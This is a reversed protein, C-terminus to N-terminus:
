SCSRCQLSPCCASSLLRALLHGSGIGLDINELSLDMLSAFVAAAPLQFRLGGLEWHMTELKASSPLDNLNIMVNGIERRFCNWISLLRLKLVFSKATNEMAYRIWEQAADASRLVLPKIAQLDAPSM